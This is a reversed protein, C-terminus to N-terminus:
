SEEYTPYLFRYRKTAEDFLGDVKPLGLAFESNAWEIIAAELGEEQFDALSFAAWDVQIVTVPDATRREIFGAIRRLGHELYRLELANLPMHRLGAPSRECESRPRSVLTADLWLRGAIHSAVTPPTQAGYTSVGLDIAVGWSAKLLRYSQISM